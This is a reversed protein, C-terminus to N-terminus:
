SETTEGNGRPGGINLLRTQEKEPQVSPTKSRGRAPIDDSSPIRHKQSRCTVSQSFFFIALTLCKAFQTVFLLLLRKGTLEMLFKWLTCSM